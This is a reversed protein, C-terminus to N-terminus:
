KDSATKQLSDALLVSHFKHLYGVATFTISLSHTILTQDSLVSVLFGTLLQVIESWREM